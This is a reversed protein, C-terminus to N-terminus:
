PAVATSATLLLVFLIGLAVLILVTETRRLALYRANGEPGDSTPEGLVFHLKIASGALLFAAGFTWLLRATLIGYQLGASVGNGCTSTFCDAPPSAFIVAVLTGVFLLLLGLMRGILALFAWPMPRPAQSMMGPIQTPAAAIPGTSSPPINSPM